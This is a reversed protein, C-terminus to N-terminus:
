IHIYKIVRSFTTSKRITKGLQKKKKEKKKQGRKNTQEKSQSYNVWLLKYSNLMGETSSFDSVLHIFEQLSYFDGPIGAKKKKGVQPVLVQALFHHHGRCGTPRDSDGHCPQPPVATKSQCHWGQGQGASGARDRGLM